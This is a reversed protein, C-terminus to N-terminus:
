FVPFFVQTGCCEGHGWGAGSGSGACGLLWGGKGPQRQPRATALPACPACARGSAGTISPCQAWHFPVLAKSALRRQGPQTGASHPAARPSSPRPGRRAPLAPLTPALARARTGEAGGCVQPVTGRGERRLAARPVRRRSVRPAAHRECVPVPTASAARLGRPTGSSRPHSSGPKRRPPLIRLM